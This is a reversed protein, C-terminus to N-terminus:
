TELLMAIESAERLVHGAGAKEFEEKTTRGTLVGITMMGARKGAQIDITHDGIMVAEGSSVNLAEIASFLHDPHPKVKKVSNRSIFVDCFQDIKPFVRRVAEECNRTIIGIKIGKERL